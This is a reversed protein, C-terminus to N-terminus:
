ENVVDKGVVEFRPLFGYAAFDAALFSRAFEKAEAAFKATKPVTIAHAIPVGKVTNNEDVAFSVGAYVDKLAPDSLNMCAPLDAFPVGMSVAGSRYMFDYDCRPMTERTLNPDMGYHGPHEMLKASLGPEVQDALLMAMVARYGGPDGYPNNHKFTAKPDLLKEKWNDSNIDSGPKGMVVMSNAAFITYGDAQEPMLMDAINTDDAVILVDCREGALVRRILDVSGGPRMEAQREPHALNWQQVKERVVRMAVGATFIQLTKDKQRFMDQGNKILFLEHRVDCVKQALIGYMNRTFIGQAQSVEPDYYKTIMDSTFVLLDMDFDLPRPQHPPRFNGKGKEQPLYDGMCSFAPIEAMIMGPEGFQPMDWKFQRPAIPQAPDTRLIMKFKGKEMEGIGVQGKKRREIAPQMAELLTIIQEDSMDQFLTTTKLEPLYERYNEM